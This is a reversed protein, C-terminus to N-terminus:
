GHDQFFDKQRKNKVMDKVRNADDKERTVRIDDVDLTKFPTLKHIDPERRAQTNAPTKFPTETCTEGIVRISDVGLTRFSTSKYRNQEKRGWTAKAPTKFPTKTCTCMAMTKFSSSPHDQFFKYAVRQNRLQTKGDIKLCPDEFSDISNTNTKNEIASVSKSVNKCLVQILGLRSSAAHGVIIEKCTKTEVINFSHDQFSKDSYHQLRLKISCHNILKENDFCELNTRSRRLFRDQPYGHKDLAHPFM